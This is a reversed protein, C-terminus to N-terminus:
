QGNNVHANTMTIHIPHETSTGRLLKIKYLFQPHTLEVNKETEKNCYVNCNIDRHCHM